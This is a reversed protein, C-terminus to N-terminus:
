GVQPAPRLGQHLRRLRFDEFLESRAHAQALGRLPDQGVLKKDALSQAFPNDDCRRGGISPRCSGRGGPGHGGRDPKPTGGCLEAPALSARLRKIGEDVCYAAFEAVTFEGGNNTRLVWLKHGSEKEVEAQVKKIADTSADKSPLLVAWMYRSVDDVLLLFYRWGGLTAPTVPGCLDGHVLELQKQV